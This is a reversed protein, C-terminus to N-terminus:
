ELDMLAMLKKVAAESIQPNEHRSLETLRKVQRDRAMEEKEKELREDRAVHAAAIVKTLSGFGDAMREGSKASMM